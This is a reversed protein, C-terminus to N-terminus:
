KTYLSRNSNQLLYRQGGSFDDTWFLIRKVTKLNSYQSLPLDETNTMKKHFWDNTNGDRVPDETLITESSYIIVNQPNEM